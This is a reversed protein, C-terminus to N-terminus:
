GSFIMVVRQLPKKLLRDLRLRGATKRWAAYQVHAACCRAAAALRFFGGRRLRPPKKVTEHPKTAAEGCHQVLRPGTDM